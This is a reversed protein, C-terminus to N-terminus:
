PVSFEQARIYLTRLGGLHNAAFAKLAGDQGTQQYEEILQIMSELALVQASFYANSFQEEAATELAQLKNQYEQSLEPSPDLGEERVADVLEVGFGQRMQDTVTQAFTKVFEEQGRSAAVEASKLVFNSLSTLRDAFMRKEDQQAFAPALGAPLFLLVLILIGPISRYM